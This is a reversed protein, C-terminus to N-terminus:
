AMGAGFAGRVSGGESERELVKNEVGALGKRM